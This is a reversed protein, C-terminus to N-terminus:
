LHGKGPTPLSSYLLPFFISTLLLEDVICCTIAALQVGSSKSTLFSFFFFFFYNFNLKSLSRAVRSATHFHALAPEPAMLFSSSASAGHPFWPSIGVPPKPDPAGLVGPRLWLLSCALTGLGLPVWPGWQGSGHSQSSASYETFPVKELGSAFPM